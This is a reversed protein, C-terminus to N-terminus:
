STATTEFGRVANPGVGDPQAALLVEGELAVDYLCQFIQCRYDLRAAPHYRRFTKRTLGQDDRFMHPAPQAAVIDRNHEHLVDHFFRRCTETKGIWAGSNLYCYPSEAISREFQTLAPVDPCSNKETNFLIDCGFSQFESLITHVPAVVLIDDSDLAMVYESKVERLATANLYVKMDNRWEPLNRGLTVHPVGWRDLCRELVSKTRRNNWTLITLEPCPGCPEHTEQFFDAVIREWRAQWAPPNGNRHVVRPTTGTILNTVLM